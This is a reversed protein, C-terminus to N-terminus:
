REYQGGGSPVARIKELREGKQGRNKARKIQNDSTEGMEVHERKGELGAGM